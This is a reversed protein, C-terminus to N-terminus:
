SGGMTIHGNSSVYKEYLWRDVHIKVGRIILDGVREAIQEVDWDIGRESTYAISKFFKEYDNGISYPCGPFVCYNKGSYIIEIVKRM